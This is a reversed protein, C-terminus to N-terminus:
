PCPVSHRRCPRPSPTWSRGTHRLAGLNRDFGHNTREVGAAELVVVHSRVLLDGLRDLGRPARHLLVLLLNVDLKRLASRAASLHGAGGDILLVDPLTEEEEKLRKLRRTVVERIMAYDDIGEVTKIRFRRYGAKFPRTRGFGGM